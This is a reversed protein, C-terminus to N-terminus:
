GDSSLSMIVAGLMVMRVAPESVGCGVSAALMDTVPSMSVAARQPLYANSPLIPRM